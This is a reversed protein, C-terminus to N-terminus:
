SRGTPTAGRCPSSSRRCAEWWRLTVSCRSATASASSMSRCNWITRGSAPTAIRSPPAENPGILWRVPPRGGSPAISLRYLRKIATEAFVRAILDQRQQAASMIRDIGGLTKNLSDADLGQNYRSVGTRNERVTTLYELTQLVAGTVNPVQLWDVHNDSPRAGPKLRIPSGPGLRDPQRSQGPRQHRPAAPERHLPQRAARADIGIGAAAPGADSRVALSRRHHPADPDAHRARDFGRGQWETREIIRGATGGGHAYVVRLLESVGDGDDDARIYAVVVWFPRESDDQGSREAEEFFGENRQAAEVTLDRDTGLESIEEITLGLKVLDSSTVRKIFGLFSSKDEDRAVPSFRIDEPAISEVVVRKRKYTITITGSFTPLPAGVDPALDMALEAGQGQSEAVILDVVDQTLHQVPTVRKEEVDDLDVAVGSLRYMLADKLLASVIRFGDNQRMLVHPVYESAEKAWREQGPALPVFKALDDTATFVRMLGPMLSEVVDAFESTVVSSAGEQEDGYPLRDYYSLAEERVASLVSTQYGSAAEEEKRLLAILDDDPLPM